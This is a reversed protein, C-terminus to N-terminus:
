PAKPHKAKKTTTGTVDFEDGMRKATRERAKTCQVGPNAAVALAHAEQPPKGSCILAFSVQVGCRFCRLHEGHTPPPLFLGAASIVMVAPTGRQTPFRPDDLMSAQRGQDDAFTPHKLLLVSPKRQMLKVADFSQQKWGKNALLAAHAIPPPIFISYHFIFCFLYMIVGACGLM